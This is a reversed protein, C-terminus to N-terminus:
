ITKGVYGHENDYFLYMECLVITFFNFYFIFVYVQIVFFNPLVTYFYKCM